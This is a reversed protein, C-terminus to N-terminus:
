QFSDATDDVGCVPLVLWSLVTASVHLYHIFILLYHTYLVTMYYRPIKRVATYRVDCATDAIAVMCRRFSSQISWFPASCCNFTFLYTVSVSNIQLKAVLYWRICAVGVEWEDLKDNLTGKISSSQQTYPITQKTSSLMSIFSHIKRFILGKSTRKALKGSLCWSAGVSAKWPVM